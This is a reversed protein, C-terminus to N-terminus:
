GYQRKKLALLMCFDVNLSDFALTLYFSLFVFTAYLIQTEPSQKHRKVVKSKWFFDYYVASSPAVEQQAYYYACNLRWIRTIHLTSDGSQRKLRRVKPSLLVQVVGHFDGFFDDLDHLWVRFSM